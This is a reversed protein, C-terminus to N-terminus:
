SPHRSIKAGAAGEPRLDKNFDKENKLDWNLQWQAKPNDLGMDSFFVKKKM